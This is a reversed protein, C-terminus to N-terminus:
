VEYADTIKSLNLNITELIKKSSKNEKNLEKNLRIMEESFEDETM